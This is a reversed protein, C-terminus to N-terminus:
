ARPTRDAKKRSFALATLIGAGILGVVGAIAILHPLKAGTAPLETLSASGLGPGDVVAFDFSQLRINDVSRLTAEYDGTLARVAPPTYSVTAVGRHNAITSGSIQSAGGFSVAFLVEERPVFGTTSVAFGTTSFATRTLPALPETPDSVPVPTFLYLAGGIKMHTLTNAPSVFGAGVIMFGEPFEDQFTPLTEQDGAKVRGFAQDTTWLLTGNSWTSNGTSLASLTIPEHDLNEIEIIATVSPDDVTGFFTNGVFDLLDSTDLAVPVAKVIQGPTAFELGSLTATPAGTAEWGHSLTGANSTVFTVDAPPQATASASAFLPSIALVTIGTGLALTRPIGM